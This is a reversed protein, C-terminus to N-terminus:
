QFSFSRINKQENKIKFHKNDLSIDLTAKSVDIGLFVKNKAVM